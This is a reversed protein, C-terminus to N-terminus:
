SKVSANKMRVVESALCAITSFRDTHLAALKQPKRM